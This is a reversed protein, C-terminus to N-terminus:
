PFQDTGRCTRIPLYSRRRETSCREIDSCVTEGDKEEMIKQVRRESKELVKRCRDRLVTAQEYVELSEDLDLEGGELKAVLAELAKMDTEFGEKEERNVDDTKM